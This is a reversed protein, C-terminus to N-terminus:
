NPFNGSKMMGKQEKTNISKQVNYNSMSGNLLSCFIEENRWIAGAGKMM